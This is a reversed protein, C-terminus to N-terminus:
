DTGTAAGTQMGARMGASYGIGRGGAFAGRLLAREIMSFERRGYARTIWSQFDAEAQEGAFRVGDSNFNRAERSAMGTNNAM